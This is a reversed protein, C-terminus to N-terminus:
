IRNEYAEIEYARTSYIQAVIGLAVLVLFVITWLPSDNLAFRIPNDVFKALTMGLYGFMLTGVIVGAGGVATAVIIVYKQLSFWFTVIIMVVAVIIGVLWVLWNWDVGILGMFGAGLAYGLSGAVIAVAAAFFLYSLIAFLAGVVFGVIWSTVTALFGVGFLLQLSQAGLAFGFFFGWIPLLTLFLRYGAFTVILGLFLAILTACFIEFGM